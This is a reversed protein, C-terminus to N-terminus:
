KQPFVVSSCVNQMPFMHLRGYNAPSIFRECVSQVRPYACCFAHAAIGSDGRWCPSDEVTGQDHALTPAALLDGVGGHVSGAYLLVFLM